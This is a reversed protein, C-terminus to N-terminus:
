FFQIMADPGMVAHCISPSFTSATVSKRKKPELIAASLSQLWSILLHNGRPLFAIVFRSQTNFLLSIVRGVFTQITLAITEWHDCVTTLAPSYLLCLALSNFDKFQSAPSSEQSGESLLSILGTLGTMTVLCWFDIISLCVPVCVCM